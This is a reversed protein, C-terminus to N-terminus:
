LHPKRNWHHIYIKLVADHMKQSKSFCITRRQLRKLHTRFNLNQREIDQTLAKGVWHHSEPLLKAYSDFADTCYRLVLYDALKELLQQCSEDTRRGLVYGCITKRTADFGYWLWRQNEKKGVFSWMEDVQLDTIRCLLRVQGLSAAHQRITKLVTNISMMLVRSIDRIGSGNVTMPVILSRLEPRWGSYDYDLIFHRLCDKCRFRQKAKPTRGNKIIALSRCKPCSVPIFKVILSYSSL